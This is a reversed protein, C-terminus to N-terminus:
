ADKGEPPSAATSPSPEVRIPGGSGAGSRLGPLDGIGSAARIANVDRVLASLLPSDAPCDLDPSTWGHWSVHTTTGFSASKMCPAGAVNAARAAKLDTFFRAAVKASVTFPRASGQAVGARNQLRITARGDSWIDIRYGSTNTSGSDVIAAGDRAPAAGASVLVSLAVAMGVAFAADRAM